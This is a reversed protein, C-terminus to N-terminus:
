GWVHGDPVRYAVQKGTSLFYLFLLTCLTYRQENKSFILAGKLAIQRQPNDLSANV